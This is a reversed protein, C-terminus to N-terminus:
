ESCFPTKRNELRDFITVDGSQYPGIEYGDFEFHDGDQLFWLSFKRDLVVLFSRGGENSLPFLDVRAGDFLHIASDILHPNVGEKNARYRVWQRPLLRM